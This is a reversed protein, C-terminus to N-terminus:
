RWTQADYTPVNMPTLEVITISDVAVDPGWFECHEGLRVPHSDADGQDIRFRRLFGGENPVRAWLTYGDEEVEVSHIRMPGCNSMAWQGPLVPAGDSWTPFIDFVEDM